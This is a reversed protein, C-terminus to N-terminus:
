EAAIQRVADILADIETEDNFWGISARIAGDPLLGLAQHTGPNCHLGPRVCIDFTEDLIAAAEISSLSRLTFTVIGLRPGKGAVDGVLQVNPTDRLGARLREALAHEKEAIKDVGQTAVYDIGAAMGALGHVNPTGAELRTPMEEPQSQLLAQGGSGGERFPAVHVGPRVYLFGTGTPGMLAKHGPAAFLDIRSSALDIPWCGATQAGDVLLLVNRERCITAIDAVPNVIGTVNSAHSVAVLRTSPRLAAAFDDPRYRFNDHGNVWTVAEGPQSRAFSLMPRRLSNHELSGVVAHDGSKLVGRIAMNLADTCNLTLAFCEPGAGHLLGNLKHRCSAVIREAALGLRHGSRGPNGIGARAARDMAEYASSPKPFSTAANDLYIM